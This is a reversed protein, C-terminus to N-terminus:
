IQKRVAYTKYSTSNNDSQALVAGAPRTGVVRPHSDAGPVRLGERESPPPPARPAAAARRVVRQVLQRQPQLGPRRGIGHADVADTYEESVQSM